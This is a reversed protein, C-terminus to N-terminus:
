RSLRRSLYLGLLFLDEAICDNLSSVSSGCRGGLPVGISYSCTDSRLRPHPGEGRTYVLLGTLFCLWCVCRLWIVCSLTPTPHTHCPFEVTPSDDGFRDDRTQGAPIVPCDPPMNLLAHLWFQEVHEVLLANPLCWSPFWLSLFQHSLSRLTTRPKPSYM